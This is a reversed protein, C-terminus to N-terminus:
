LAPVTALQPLAVWQGEQQVIRIAHRFVVELATRLEGDAPAGAAWRVRPGFRRELLEPLTTVGAQRLPGVGFRLKRPQALVPRLAAISLLGATGILLRRSPRELRVGRVPEARGSADGGRPPAGFASRPHAM